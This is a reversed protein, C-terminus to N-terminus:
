SVNWITLSNESRNNESFIKKDIIIPIYKVLRWKKFSITTYESFKSSSFIIIVIIVNYAVKELPSESFLELNKTTSRM